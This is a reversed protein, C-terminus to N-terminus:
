SAMGICSWARRRSFSATASPRTSRASTSRRCAPSVRPSAARRGPRRGIVAILGTAMALGIIRGRRVPGRRLPTEVLRWTVWALGASLVLLSAAQLATPPRGLGSLMPSRGAVALALSVAPLQGPRHGRGGAAVTPRPQGLRVTRGRDATHRRLRAAGRALGSIAHAARVGAGGGPDRVGGIVSALDAYRARGARMPGAQAVLAGCAFEWFRTVPLYFDADPDAASLWVSGGFSALGMVATVRWTRWGRREAAWLTLPWLLYFQEEVGLSWLHLLPKTVAAQDFYGAQRWLLINSTFSAAAMMQRGLQDMETPLLVILGYAFCAALVTLLAPALRRARRVYFNSFSFRGQELASGIFGTILFGSIVFFMDVGVFGGPFSTPFAHYLLVSMVALARLGDIDRRYTM